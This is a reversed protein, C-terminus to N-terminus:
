LGIRKGVTLDILDSATCAARYVDPYDEPLSTATLHSHEGM